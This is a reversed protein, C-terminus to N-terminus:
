IGLPLTFAWSSRGAEPPIPPFPAARRVIALAAKDLEPSGSSSAIRLGALGGSATVTFSVRVDGRAKGRASSSISRSARRLRAAVKGPYNSIAANGAASRTDSKGAVTKEGSTEGDAVGRKADSSSKGGSGAQRTTKRAPKEAKPQEKAAAKKRAPRAKEKKPAPEPEAKKVPKEVVTKEVPKPEPAPEVIDPTEATKIEETPEPATREVPPPAGASDEVPQMVEATLISPAPDAAAMAPPTEQVPEVQEPLAALPAATAVPQVVDPEVPTAEAPVPSVAETTMTEVAEAVVTEVPRPALMPVLTVQTADEIRDGDALQDADANGLMLVGSEESGAIMVRDAGAALLALAAAAHLLCSFAIMATWGSPRRRIPPTNLPQSPIAALDAKGPDITQLEDPEGFGTLMTERPMPLQPDDPEPPLSGMLVPFPAPAGHSIHELGAM